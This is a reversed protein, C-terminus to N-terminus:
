NQPALQTSVVPPHTPEMNLNTLSLSAFCWIPTPGDRGLFVFSFQYAKKAANRQGFQSADIKWNLDFTGLAGKSGEM